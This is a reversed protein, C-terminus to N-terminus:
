PAETTFVIYGSGNKVVTNALINANAATSDYVLTSGSYLKIALYYNTITSTFAPHDVIVTYGSVTATVDGGTIPTSGNATSSIRALATLGTLPEGFTLTLSGNLPVHANALTAAGSPVDSTGWDTGALKYLNTARIFLNSPTYVASVIKEGTYGSISAEGSTTSTVNNYYIYTESWPRDVYVYVSSGDVKYALPKTNVIAPTANAEYFVLDPTGLIPKSFTLKFASGPGAVLTRTVAPTTELEVSVLILKPETYVVTPAFSIYSGDAARTKKSLTLKGAGNIDAFTSFPFSPVSGAAPISDARLIVTVDSDGWDPKLAIDTGLTFAGDTNTDLYAVFSAQNIPKSFTLTIEGNTAIPTTRNETGINHSLVFGVNGLDFLYIDPLGVVLPESNRPTKFTTLVDLADNGAGGDGGTEKNTVVYASGTSNVPTGTNVTTAFHYLEGNEGIQQEFRNITINFTADAPLGAIEFTGEETTKVPGYADKVEDPNAPQNAGYATNDVFWVDVGAAIPQPAAIAASEFTGPVVWIKGKFGSTLPTLPIISSGADFVYDNELQWKGVWKFEKTGENYTVVSGDSATFNHGTFTWDTVNALGDYPTTQLWADFSARLTQLTEKELFPDNETYENPDVVIPTVKTTLKYGPKSVSVVYNTNVDTGLGSKGSNPILGKIVYAGGADTTASKGGISVTAGEVPLGTIKDFVVGNTQGKVSGFTPSTSGNDCGTIIMTLALFAVISWSLAKKM